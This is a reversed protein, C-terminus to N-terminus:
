WSTNKKARAAQEKKLAALIKASKSKRHAKYIKDLVFACGYFILLSIGFAWFFLEMKGGWLNRSKM